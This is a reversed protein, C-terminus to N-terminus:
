FSPACNCWEPWFVRVRWIEEGISNKEKERSGHLDPHRAQRSARKAESLPVGLPRAHPRRRQLEDLTMSSSQLRSRRWGLRRYLPALVYAFFPYRVYVSLDYFVVFFLLQGALVVAWHSFEWMHEFQEVTVFGTPVLMYYTPSLKGMVLTVFVPVVLLLTCIHKVISFSPHLEKTIPGDVELALYDIPRRRALFRILFNESKSVERMEIRTKMLVEAGLKTRGLGSFLLCRASCRLM